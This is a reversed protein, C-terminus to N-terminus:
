EWPKLSAQWASYSVRTLCSIAPIDNVSWFISRNDRTGPNEWYFSIWIAGHPLELCSETSAAEFLNFPDVESLCKSRHDIPGSNSKEEHHRNKQSEFRFLHVISRGKHLHINVCDNINLHGSSESSRAFGKLPLFREVAEFLTGSIM